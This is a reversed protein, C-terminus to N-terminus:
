QGWGGLFWRARSAEPPPIDYERPRGGVVPPGIDPDPYPDYRLARNQQVKASGPHCWNPGAVSKCGVMATLALLGAVTLWLGRM